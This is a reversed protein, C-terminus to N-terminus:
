RLGSAGVNEQGALAESGSLGAQLLAPLAAAAPISIHLFLIFHSLHNGCRNPPSTPTRIGRPLPLPPLM